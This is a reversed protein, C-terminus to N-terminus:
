SSNLVSCFRVFWIPLRSWLSKRSARVITGTFVSDASSGVFNMDNSLETKCDVNLLNRHPSSETSVKFLSFPTRHRYVDSGCVMM